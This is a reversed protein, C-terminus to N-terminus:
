KKTKNGGEIVELEKSDDVYALGSVFEEMAKPSNLLNM